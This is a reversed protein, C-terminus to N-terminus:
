MVECVSQLAANPVYELHRPTQAASATSFGVISENFSEQELSGVIDGVSVGVSM